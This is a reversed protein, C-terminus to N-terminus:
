SFNNSKTSYNNQLLRYCRKDDENEKGKKKRAFYNHKISTSASYCYVHCALLDLSELWYYQNCMSM